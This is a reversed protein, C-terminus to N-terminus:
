MCFLLLQYNMGAKVTVMRQGFIDAEIDTQQWEPLSLERVNDRMHIECLFPHASPFCHQLAAVLAADSDSGYAQLQSLAPRAEKLQLLFRRYSDEKRDHHIFLAGIKVPYIGIPALQSELM